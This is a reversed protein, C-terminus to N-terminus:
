ALKRSITVKSVLNDALSAYEKASRSNPQYEFISKGFSPSEALAVSEHIVTPLLQEPFYQHIKNAVEHAHRRRQDFRTVLIWKESERQIKKEVGDLISLLRSLGLLALYDGPVPILIEEAAVLANMGLLGSSPPCDIVVFDYGEMDNLINHLMWDSSEATERLGDFENLRPGPALLDLNNRANLVVDAVSAEHRFVADLGNGSPKLGLSASMHGQPDLDIALVRQNAMALSHCLNVTTTTKGVGGKQNIVALIRM